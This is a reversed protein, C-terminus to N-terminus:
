LIGGAVAYNGERKRQDTGATRTWAPHPSRGTQAGVGGKGEPDEADQFVGLLLHAKLWLACFLSCDFYLMDKFLAKRRRTTMKLIKKGSNSCASTRRTTGPWSPAISRRRRGRGGRRWPARRSTTSRESCRRRLSWVSLCLLFWILESMELLILIFM